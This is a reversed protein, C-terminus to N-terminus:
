YVVEGTDWEGDPGRTILRRLSVGELTDLSMQLTVCGELGDWILKGEMEETRPIALIWLQQFEPGGFHDKLTGPLRNATACHLAHPTVSLDLSTGSWLTGDSPLSEFEPVTLVKYLTTSETPVPWAPNSM